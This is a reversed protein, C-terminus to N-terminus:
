KIFLFIGFLSAKEEARKESYGIKIFAETLKKNLIPRLELLIKYFQEGESSLKVAMKQDFRPDFNDMEKIVKALALFLSDSYEGLEVKMEKMKKDISDLSSM